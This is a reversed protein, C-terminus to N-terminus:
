VDRPSTRGDDPEPETLIAGAEAIMKRLGTAAQAVAEAERDEIDGYARLHGPTLESLAVDAYLLSTRASWRASTDPEPRAIGLDALVELMRTRIARVAQELLEAELASVDTRQQDFPTVEGRGVRLIEALLENVYTFTATVARAQAVNV